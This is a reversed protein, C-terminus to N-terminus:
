GKRAITLGAIMWMVCVGACIATFIPLGLLIILPMALATVVGGGVIPEFLLQKYGFSEVVGTRQKPDVVQAFLLGTATTGMAQGLSVIGNVFWDRAFMRRAMVLFSFVVWGVGFAVLLLFALGDSSLFSLKMTAIASTVLVALTAGSLLEVLPRSVTLGCKLWIAQAMMGGFMCFTFAPMYGLIKLGDAGWTLLEIQLLAWHLGWGLAVSAVILMVHAVVKVVGLEERLSVGAKHLQHVIRRHYVMGKIQSFPTQKGILKKRRGYSILLFGSILTAFLSTTAMAVAMEQGTEFGLEQFVPVMGAATGHGGEFSIELLAASLPNAGLLPALVLLTLLGGVAYYGWAIMQGYAAQPAALKWIQKLGKLPKGLFLAGFIVNILLGPLPEWAEYLEKEISTDTPFKGLIEPGLLLLVLGAVVSAPLFAKRIGPLQVFLYGVTTAGLLVLLAMGYM